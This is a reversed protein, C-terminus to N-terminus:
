RVQAGIRRAMDAAREGWIGGVVILVKEEAELLNGLCAELGGHGSASIALTLKNRTQFAYRLGAKIEQMLQM